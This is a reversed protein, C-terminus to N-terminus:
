KKIGREELLKRAQEQLSPPTTAGTGDGSDLVNLYSRYLEM